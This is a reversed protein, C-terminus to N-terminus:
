EIPVQPLHCDNIPKYGIPLIHHILSNAPAQKVIEAVRLSHLYQLGGELLFLEHNRHGNADTGDGIM